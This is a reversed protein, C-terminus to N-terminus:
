HSTSRERLAKVGTWGPPRNPKLASHPDADEELCSRSGFDPRRALFLHTKLLYRQPLGLFPEL